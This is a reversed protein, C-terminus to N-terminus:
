KCKYGSSEIKKTASKITDKRNILLKNEGKSNDKTFDYNIKTSINEQNNKLQAYKESILISYENYKSHYYFEGETSNTSFKMEDKYKYTTPKDDKFKIKITSNYNNTEINCKLTNACGTLLVPVLLLLLIKIKKM